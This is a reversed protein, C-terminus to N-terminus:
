VPNCRLSIFKMLLLVYDSVILASFDRMVRILNSGMVNLSVNHLAVVVVWAPRKSMLVKYNSLPLPGVSYAVSTLTSRSM